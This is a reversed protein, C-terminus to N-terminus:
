HSLTKQGFRESIDVLGLQGVFIEHKQRPLEKTLGDAVMDSSRQYEVMIRNAQVEQRLWLSHIDVHRLKTNLKPMDATLLRITQQNDCYVSMKSNLEFGIHQFFRKWWVLEKGTAAIALLEAETTSTTVTNQKSARYQIAGGYLQFCYGFSSKRDVNDAYSADSSAVFARTPIDGDYQIALYRTSVLYRLLHTAAETHGTSPNRLHESLKSSARAIDPRTNVAVYNITGVLQQYSVISGQRAQGQNPRLDVGFPLPTNPPKVDLPIDFRGAAKEIFGDLLIWLKRDKRHRALRIGLFNETDGLSRIEYVSLLKKEFELFQPQHKPKYIIVIDDVYFLLSIFDNTFLCNVGPVQHLGLRGITAIFDSYWLNPSHKLGYLARQLVIMWEGERETGPPLQCYIPQKLEANVYANMVDYSKVELDFAAAMAMMARFTQIAVTAAYTDETTSQLDGRAVLRSKYKTLYGDSDVKYKFVWMLPLLDERRKSSMPEIRFTEKKELERIEAACAAVFEEKKPHAKLEKWNRPEKPLDQIRIRNKEKTGAAFATHYQRMSIDESTLDRGALIAMGFRRPERRTRGSRRVNPNQENGSEHPQESASRERPQEVEANEPEAARSTLGRQLNGTSESPFTEPIGVGESSPPQESNPKEYTLGEFPSPYRSSNTASTEPTPLGGEPSSADGNERREKDEAQSESERRHPEAEVRRQQQRREYQTTDLVITDLISNDSDDEVTHSSNSFENLRESVQEPLQITEIFRRAERLAGLELDEPSYRSMDDFRVDRTRVVKGETPMWVRFINTSDYGVLYGIHARPLMKDLAQIHHDVVYAKCGFPHMHGMMPISKTLREFPTKWALRETPTRNAAYAATMYAEPWMEAPMTAEVMMARAKTTLMRGAREAKSQQPSDPATRREEIGLDTLLEKWRSQLTREGDLLIHRPRLGYKNQILKFARRMIDLTQGTSEQTYVLNYGTCLDQFHSCFRDGNYALVEYILDWSWSEGPAIGIAEETETRRSIIQIPKSLACTQCQISDPPTTGEELKIGKVSKELQKIASPSPHGLIKHAMDASVIREIPEKSKKNGKDSRGKREARNQTAAGAATHKAQSAEQGSESETEADEQFSLNSQFVRHRGIRHLNIIVENDRTLVDPKQTSWHLGREVLRDQSVINTIFGPIYAADLLTLTGKGHPTKISVNITGYEKVQFVQTGAGVTEGPRPGRQPVFGEKHNTIHIDSGGDLIWARYLQHNSGSSAVQHHHEITAVHHTAAAVISTEGKNEKSDKTGKGKALAREIYAKKEPKSMYIDIKKQVKENPKFNPPRTEPNLYWCEQYLHRRGCLCPPKPDRSASRSQSQSQSQSGTPTDGKYTDGDVAFASHESQGKALASLAVTRRFRQLIGSMAPASKDPNDELWTELHIKEAAAHAPHFPEIATLFEYIPRTGQVEALGLQVAEQYTKEWRLMWAEIKERKNYRMALRYNTIVREEEERRSPALAARLARMLGHVTDIGDCYIMNDKSVTTLIHTQVKGLGERIEQYLELKTKYTRWQSKYIANSEETGTPEEPMDPRTPVTPIEEESKSPDIYTWVDAKGGTAVLKVNQLWTRWDSRKDLIVRANEVVVAM